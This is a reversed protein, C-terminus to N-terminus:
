LYGNREALEIINLITIPLPSDHKIFIEGKLKEFEDVTLTKNRAKFIHNGYTQKDDEIYSYVAVLTRM